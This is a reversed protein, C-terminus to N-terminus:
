KGLINSHNHKLSFLIIGIDSQEMINTMPTCQTNDCDAKAFVEESFHPNHM